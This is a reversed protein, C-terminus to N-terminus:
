GVNSHIAVRNGESDELHAIFGYEGISTKPLLVKGGQETARALVSEIDQVSFYVVSGAHSPVYSEGLVLCGMAGYAGEKMPFWAMQFAGMEHPELQLGLVQEYFATARPLDLVPIEFWGVPNFEASM